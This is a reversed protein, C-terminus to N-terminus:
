KIEECSPLSLLATYICSPHFDSPHYAASEPFLISGTPNATRQTRKGSLPCSIDAKPLYQPLVTLISFLPHFRYAEMRKLFGM